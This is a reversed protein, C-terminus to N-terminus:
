NCYRDRERVADELLGRERDTSAGRLSEMTKKIGPCPDDTYGPPWFLAQSVARVIDAPSSSRMRFRERPGAQIPNFGRMLDRPATRVSDARAASAPRDWRDDALPAKVPATPKDAAAVTVPQMKRPSTAKAAVRTRRTPAAKISLLAEKAPQPPLQIYVLEMRPAPEIELQLPRTVVWAVLLHLLAVLGWALIREMGM